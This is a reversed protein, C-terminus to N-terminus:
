GLIHLLTSPPAEAAEAAQDPSSMSCRAILAPDSGAGAM